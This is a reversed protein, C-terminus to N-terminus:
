STEGRGNATFQNPRLATRSACKRGGREPILNRRHGIALGFGM